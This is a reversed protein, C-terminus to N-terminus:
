AAASSPPTWTLFREYLDRQSPECHPTLDELADFLLASLYIRLASPLVQYEASLDAKAAECPWPTGCIRCNWSPRAGTHIAAVTV